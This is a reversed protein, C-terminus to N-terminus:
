SGKMTPGFMRELQISGTAFLKRLFVAFGARTYVHLHTIRYMGRDSVNYTRDVFLECDEAATPERIRKGGEDYDIVWLTRDAVVLVPLIFTFAEQIDHRINASCASEILDAASTLAQSWKEYSESDSTKFSNKTNPERKLQFTHKGVPRGPRYLGRDGPQAEIIDLRDTVGGGSWAKVYFQSTEAEPRPVRSVILPFEVSLSKCEIPLSLVWPTNGFRVSARVDYQRARRMNPDIYTGGHTCTVGYELLSRHVSLELEFDDQTELYESIDKSTIESM